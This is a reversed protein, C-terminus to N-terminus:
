KGWKQLSFSLSHYLSSTSHDLIDDNIDLANSLPSPSLPTYPLTSMPPPVLIKIPVDSRVDDIVHQILEMQEHAGDAGKSDILATTASESSGSTIENLLLQQNEDPKIGAEVLPLASGTREIVLDGETELMVAQAMAVAPTTESSTLPLTPEVLKVEFPPPSTPTPYTPPSKIELMILTVCVRLRRPNASSHYLNLDRSTHLINAVLNLGSLRVSPFALSFM